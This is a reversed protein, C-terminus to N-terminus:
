APRPEPRRLVRAVVLAAGGCLMGSTITYGVWFVLQAFFGIWLYETFYNLFHDGPPAVDYHTGWHGRIAFLMIIAVPIRAALAYALMVTFLRRWGPLTVLAALALVSWIYLLWHHLNDLPLRRALMFGGVVVAAGLLGFGLARGASAAGEGARELRVAFYIGFLPALWTIGVIASGGGAQPDFFTRSWHELEGTLRLATVALTFAAPVAILPWTALRLTSSGSGGM